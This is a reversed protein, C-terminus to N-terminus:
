DRRTGTREFIRFYPDELVPHFGDPLRVASMYDWSLRPRARGTAGGARDLGDVGFVLLDHRPAESPDSASQIEDFDADLLYELGTALTHGPLHYVSIARDRGALESLVDFAITPTGVQKFQPSWALSCPWGAHFLVLAGALWAAIVAATPRRAIIAAVAAIVITVLLLRANSFSRVISAMYPFANGPANVLAVADAWFLNVLCLAAGGAVWAKGPGAPVNESLWTGAAGALTLLFPFAFRLSGGALLSGHIGAGANDSCPTAFAAALTVLLVGSLILASRRGKLLAPDRAAEPRSARSVRAAILRAAFTGFLLLALIGGPGLGRVLALLLCRPLDGDLNGFVTTGAVGMTRGAFVEIGHAAVRFPFVPNGTEFWATVYFYLGLPLAVFLIKATRRIPFSRELSLWAGLGVAAYLIATSKFSLLLAVAAAAPLWPLMRVARGNRRRVALVPLLLFLTLSAIMLDDGANRLNDQLAGITILTCFILDSWRRQGVSARLAFYLIAAAAAGFLVTGERAFGYLFFFSLIAEMGRTSTAPPWSPWLVPDMVATSAEQIMNRVNVVRYSLFEGAPLTTALDVFLTLLVCFLVLQRVGKGRAGGTANRLVRRLAHRGKWAFPLCIGALLANGAALPFPRLLGVTGLSLIEVYVVLLSTVIWAASWLAPRRGAVRHTPPFLCLAASGAGALNVTVAILRLILSAM